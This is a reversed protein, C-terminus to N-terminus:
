LPFVVEHIVDQEADVLLIGDVDFAVFYELLQRRTAHNRLHPAERGTKVEAVYRRGKRRVLLDARLDAACRSGDVLFTMRAEVQRGAIAYGRRRLLKEARAEGRM